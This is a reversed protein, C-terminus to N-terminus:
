RKHLNVIDRFPTNRGVGNFRENGAKAIPSSNANKGPSSIWKCGTTVVVVPPGPLTTSVLLLLPPPIMGFNCCVDPPPIPNPPTPIIISVLVIDVGIGGGDEVNPAAVRDMVPPDREAGLEGPPEIPLEEATDVPECVPLDTLDILDILDDAM